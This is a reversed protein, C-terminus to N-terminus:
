HSAPAPHPVRPQFVQHSPGAAMSITSRMRSGGLNFGQNFELTSAVREVNTFYLTDRYRSRILNLLLEQDNTAKIAQNYSERGYSISRPGMTPSMCGVLTSAILLATLARILIKM